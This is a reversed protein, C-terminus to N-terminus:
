KTTQAGSARPRWAPSADNDKGNTLRREAGGAEIWIAGDRSFSVEGSPSWAPQLADTDGRTVQTLETGNPRITYIEDHGSRADSQFAIRTGDPSWAPAASTHDLRTLQRSGTGDANMVYVERALSDPRRYDYAISRGDPSWAPDEASGFGSGVRRAAGGAAPAVFLAGERSFVIRRGDPSWAPRHDEKPGHTLRRVGSGDANMVYVHFAGDRRSVFAIKTGDPSWAPETQFFLGAPSGTDGREKSLRRVGKGNADAGFLAYDGDRTSVFVLSPPGKPSSGGCAALAAVAVALLLLRM